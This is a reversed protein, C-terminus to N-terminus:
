YTSGNCYGTELGVCIGGSKPEQVKDEEHWAAPILDELFDSWGKVVLLFEDIQIM